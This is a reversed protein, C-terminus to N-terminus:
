VKIGEREICDFKLKINNNNNNNNNNIIIIVSFCPVYFFFQCHCLLSFLPFARSFCVIFCFSYDLPSPLSPVTSEEM